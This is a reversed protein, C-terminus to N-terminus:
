VPMKLGDFRKSQEVLDTTLATLEDNADAALAETDDTIFNDHM